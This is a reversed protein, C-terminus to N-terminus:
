AAEAATALARFLRVAVAKHYGGGAPEVAVSGDYRDVLTHVLGLGRTSLAAPSPPLAPSSDAVRLCM